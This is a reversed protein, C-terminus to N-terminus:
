CGAASARRVKTGDIRLGIVSANDTEDTEALVRLPDAALELCLLRGALRKPLRLTQGPLDYDYIDVWGPSIGQRSRRTCDGFYQQRVIVRSEPALRNDRLCFSVKDTSALREGTDAGRLTYRAMADFHWHDHGPHRVMCGVDRASGRVPDRRRHYRGNEDGDLHLRQV